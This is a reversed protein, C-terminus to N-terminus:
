VIGAQRTRMPFLVGDRLADATAAIVGRTFLEDHFMALNADSWEKKPLMMLASLAGSVIPTRYLDAFWSEIGQAKMGPKLCLMLSVEYVANPTRWLRLTRDNEVLYFHEPQGCQREWGAVRKLSHQTTTSLAMGDIACALVKVVDVEPNVGADVDLAYTPVEKETALGCAVKLRRSQTCLARASQRLYHDVMPLPCANVSPLIDPYFDAWPTLM